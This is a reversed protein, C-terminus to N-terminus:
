LWESGVEADFTSADMYSEAGGVHEAWRGANWLEIRQGVGAVFVRAEPDEADVDLISRLPEPVLIRGQADPKVEYGNGSFWRLLNQDAGSERVKNQLRQYAAQFSEKRWLGLCPSGPVRGLVCHDDEDGKRRFEPPLSVRWKADLTREHNGSFNKQM